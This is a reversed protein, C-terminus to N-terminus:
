IGLEQTILAGIYIFLLIYIQFIFNDHYDYIDINKCLKFFCDVLLKIIILTHLSMLKGRTAMEIRVEQIQPIQLSQGQNVNPDRTYKWPEQFFHEAAHKANRWLKKTLIRSPRLM